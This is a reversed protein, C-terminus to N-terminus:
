LYTGQNKSSTTVLVPIDTTTTTTTVSSTTVDSPGTTTLVSSESFETGHIYDLMFNHDSSIFTAKLVTVVMSFAVTDESQSTESLHLSAVAGTIAADPFTFVPAVGRRAVAEMRLYNRYIDLLVDKGPNEGTDVVVGNIQLQMANKGFAIYAFFNGIPAELQIHESYGFDISEVVIDVPFPESATVSEYIAARGSYDDYPTEMTSKAILTDNYQSSDWTDADWSM